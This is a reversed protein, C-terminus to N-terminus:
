SVKRAIPDEDVVEIREDVSTLLPGREIWGEVRSLYEMGWEGRM